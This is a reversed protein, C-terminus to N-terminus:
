AVVTNHSKRTKQYRLIQLLCSAGVVVVVVVVCMKIYLHVCATVELGYSYRTAYCPSAPHSVCCHQHHSAVLLYLHKYM